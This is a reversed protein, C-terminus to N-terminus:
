HLDATPFGSGQMLTPLVASAESAEGSVMSRLKRGDGSIICQAESAGM